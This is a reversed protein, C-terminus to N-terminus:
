LRGRVSQVFDGVYRDLAVTQEDVKRAAAVVRVAADGTIRAEDGVTGVSATVVSTSGAVAQADAAINSAIDAQRSVVNALIGSTQEISTM